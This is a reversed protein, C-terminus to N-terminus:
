CLGKALKIQMFLNLETLIVVYYLIRLITGDNRYNQASEVNSETKQTFLAPFKENVNVM